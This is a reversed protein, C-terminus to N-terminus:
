FNSSILILSKTSLLKKSYRYSLALAVMYDDFTYRPGSEEVSAVLGEPRQYLLEFYQRAQDLAPERNMTINTLAQQITFINRCIKKVGSESIKTM